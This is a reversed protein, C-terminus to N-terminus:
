VSPRLQDQEVGRVVRGALDEVGVLQGQDGVEGDFVVEDDDGVLHVLVEQEVTAAVDRDRVSGPIDSRVRVMEDPPLVNLVVPQFIPQIVPGSGSTVAARVAM